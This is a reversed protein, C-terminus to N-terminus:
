KRRTSYGCLHNTCRETVSIAHDFRQDDDWESVQKNTTGRKFAYNMNLESGCSPCDSHVIDTFISGKKLEDYFPSRTNM